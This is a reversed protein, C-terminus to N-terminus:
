QSSVFCKKTAPNIKQTNETGNTENSNGGLTISNEEPICVNM